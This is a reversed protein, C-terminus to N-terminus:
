EVCVYVTRCAQQKRLRFECFLKLTELQFRKSWRETQRKQVVFGQLRGRGSEGGLLQRDEERGVVDFPLVLILQDRVM